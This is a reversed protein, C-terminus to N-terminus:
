ACRLSAIWLTQLLNEAVYCSACRSKAQGRTLQEDQVDPGAQAPAPLQGTTVPPGPRGARAWAAAQAKAPSCRQPAKKHPSIGDATAPVYSCLPDTPSKTPSPGPSNPSSCPLAHADLFAKRAPGNSRALVLPEESDAIVLSQPPSRGRPVKTRGKGPPSQTSHKAAADTHVWVCASFYSVVPCRLDLCYTGSCLVAYHSGLFVICCLM